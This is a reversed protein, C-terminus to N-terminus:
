PKLPGAAADTVWTLVRPAVGLLIIASGSVALALRMSISSPVKEDSAPEEMYMVRVVRLYYYASVVSNVVGFIALWVLDSQVAASFLFIKGIFLGTPPVGILSILALALVLSIM